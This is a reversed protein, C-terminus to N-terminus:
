EENLLNIIKTIATFSSLNKVPSLQLHHQRLSNIFEKDEYLILNGKALIKLVMATRLTTGRLRMSGEARAPHFHIYKDTKEGKRFTWKSGDSLELFNYNKGMNWVWEEYAPKNFVAFKILQSRIKSILQNVSLLGCYIDTVQHGISNILEFTEPENEKIEAWKIVDRIFGLHHKLPNFVFPTTIQDPKIIIKIM